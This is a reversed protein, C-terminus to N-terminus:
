SSRTQPVVSVNKGGPGGPPLVPEVEAGGWHDDRHVM